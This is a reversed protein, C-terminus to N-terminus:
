WTYGQFLSSDLNEGITLFFFLNTLFYVRFEFRNFVAFIKM